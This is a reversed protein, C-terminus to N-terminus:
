YAPESSLEISLNDLRHPGGGVEGFVDPIDQNIGPEAAHSKTNASTVHQFTFHGTQIM